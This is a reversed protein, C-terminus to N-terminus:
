NTGELFTGIAHKYILHHKGQSLFDVVQQDYDAITGRLQFGNTLFVTLEKEEKKFNELYTEQIDQKDFM